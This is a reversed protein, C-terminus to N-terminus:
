TQARDPRYLLLPEPGVRLVTVPQGRLVTNWQTSETTEMHSRIIWVRAGPHSAPYRTAEAWAKDVDSQQYGTM